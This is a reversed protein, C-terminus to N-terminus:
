DDGSYIKLPYPKKIVPLRDIRAFYNTWWRNALRLHIKLAMAFCILFIRSTYRSDTSKLIGYGECSAQTLVPRRDESGSVSAKDVWKLYESYFEKGKETPRKTKLQTWEQDIASGCIEWQEKSRNALVRKKCSEVQDRAREKKKNGQGVQHQGLCFVSNTKRDM